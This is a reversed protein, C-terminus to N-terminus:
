SLHERMQQEHFRQVSPPLRLVRPRQLPPAKRLVGLTAGDSWEALGFHGLRHLANTFPSNKSLSRSFGFSSALEPLDIDLGDPEAAVWAALRRYLWAGTPGLVPLWCVEVYESRPDFGLQDIVEDQWAVLRLTDPLVEPPLLREGPLPIGEGSM